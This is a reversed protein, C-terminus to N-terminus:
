SQPIISNLLTIMQMVIIITYKERDNAPSTGGHIAPFCNCCCCWHWGCNVIRQLMYGRLASMRGAGLATQVSRLASMKDAFAPPVGATRTPLASMKDAVFAPSVGATCNRLAPIKGAEWAVWVGAVRLEEEAAGGARWSSGSPWDMVSRYQDM